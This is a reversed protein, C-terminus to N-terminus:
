PINLTPVFNAWGRVTNTTPLVGSWLASWNTLFLAQCWKDGGAFHPWRALSRLVDTKASWIVIETVSKAVKM